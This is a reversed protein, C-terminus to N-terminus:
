RQGGNTRARWALAAARALYLGAAEDDFDIGCARVFNVHMLSGLVDDFAIGETDPGSFHTRYDALARDRPEWAAVIADGGEQSRLAAWGDHPNAIRVAEAFLPRPVRTPATAPVHDILWQMGATTNGTFAIAIAASHAAVLAQRHPRAILGLQTLVARSDAGFVAEAATMAPGSGWRGTERYSTPYLVERLLGSQQLEGAWASVTHAVGGFAAPTPLAIRLRLHQDPDRYRVFWWFPHGLRDLLDSLYETLIVDQRHLDGYLSALLVPSCAPLQGSDRRIVRPRGPRPLSPWPPPEVATLPVIIEHSRGECWGVDVPAAAETLVAHPATDLHARLLARHGAQDLDLPLLRDGSTLHVRRPLRRRTRWGTLADDWVAWPQSRAAVETADLRWRAASLITRGYRVRPLFPLREAAGWSFMTVQAYQARSLETLLRALPPTHTRLNLAHMGVAELRLGCSPAALYMRRGDCGVFLDEVTLVREDPARHEALSILTPLIRPSRTVHTTSPDLPPFSLQAAESDSDGGPLDALGAAVCAGDQPQLVSLFRGTLVGAARSVTVVELTFDGRQLTAQSAAHVRVGVELHPPPRLHEPGLELAAILSEDLVIEDRGDLAAGQALALLTEDRSSMPSRREPTATGPFGDPWGIGSDAVVDLLPVLSGIGFREYFRQHYARWVPTGVPYASLRTLALAAREVEHAVMDPLVAAADLRLDVALPHRKSPAIRRMREALEARVDRGEGVPSQNHRELATHLDKLTVTLDATQTLTAAGVTELQRVLHGLADPETSPAHLSTILARHAVLEALMGMVAAPAADPFEARLKASLEGVRLPGRATEVAARVATTYRLSVEVAGTGQEHAQPQYPVIMRSGRVMLTTNAVVPLRALLAGCSELQAIVEALWEAEARAIAQDRTGWRLETRDAFSAPAVGALLGFPMARGTMRMLYRAVSLVARRTERVTPVGPSCLTRVQRALAPSAHELAEAIEDSAWIRRLWGVWSSVHERSTDTLDPWPPM